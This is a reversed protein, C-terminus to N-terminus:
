FQVTGHINRVRCGTKEESGRNEGANDREEGEGDGKEMVFGGDGGVRTM